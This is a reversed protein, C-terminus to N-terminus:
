PEDGKWFATTVHPPASGTRVYVKLDRGEVTGIYVTSRLPTHPLSEAPYSTHYPMMAARVQQETIGRAEMQERAHAGFTMGVLNMM